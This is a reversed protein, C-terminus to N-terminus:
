ATAPGSYGVPFASWDQPDAVIWASCRANGFDGGQPDYYLRIYQEAATSQIQCFRITGVTANTPLTTLLQANTATSFAAADDTQLYIPLTSNNSSDDFAVTVQIAVYLPRAGLGLRRTTGRLDILNTSAAAAAVNQNSSFLTDQDILM